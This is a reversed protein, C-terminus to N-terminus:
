AAIKQNERWQWFDAWWGNKKLVRMAMMPNINKVCWCAGPLKLRAQPLHKHASEVEGSGTPWENEEFRSFQIAESFKDVYDILNDLRENECEDHLTRLRELVEELQDDWDDVDEEWLKDIFSEVWKPRMEEDIGLEEATDYFQSKLHSYDLIYTFNAFVVQMAEMLGKGGDSCGVVLTKPTLGREVALAFLQDCITAYDGRRCAYLPDVEEFGRVLGTRIERWDEIRVVDDPEYGDEATLGAQAATMMKGTRILCGDLEALLEDASKAREIPPLGYDQAITALREELYDEADTGVKRTVRLISTRGINFGYHEEFMREANGYSNESGFDSLARELSLTKGNGRLGFTEKMPRVTENTERHQLTPSPVDVVQGMRTNVDIDDRKHISMGGEKLEKIKQDALEIFVRQLAALGILLMLQFVREDLMLRHEDIWQEEGLLRQAIQSSVDEILNQYMDKM